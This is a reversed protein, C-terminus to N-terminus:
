VLIICVTQGNNQQLLTGPTGPTLTTSSLETYLFQSNTVPTVPKQVLLKSLDGPGCFISDRREVIDPFRFPSPEKSSTPSLINSSAISVSAPSKMKSDLNLQRSVVSSPQPRTFFPIRDDKVPTVFPTTEPTAEIAAEPPSELTNMVRPITGTGATFCNIDFIHM